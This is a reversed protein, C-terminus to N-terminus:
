NGKALEAFAADVSEKPESADTGDFTLSRYGAIWPKGGPVVSEPWQATIRHLNSFMSKEYLSMCTAKYELGVCEEPTEAPLDAGDLTIELCLGNISILSVIRCSAPLGIMDRLLTPTLAIKIM